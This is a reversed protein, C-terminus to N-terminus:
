LLQFCQIYVERKNDCYSNTSCICMGTITVNVALM